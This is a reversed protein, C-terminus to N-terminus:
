YLHFILIDWLWIFYESCCQFFCLHDFFPLLCKSYLLINYHDISYKRPLCMIYSLKMLTYVFQRLKSFFLYYDFSQETKYPFQLPRHIFHITFCCLSWQPTKKCQKIKYLVFNSQHFLWFIKKLYQLPKNSKPLHTKSSFIFANILLIEIVTLHSLLVFLTANLL